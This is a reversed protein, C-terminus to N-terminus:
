IQRDGLTKDKISLTLDSKLDKFVKRGTLRGIIEKQTQNVSQERGADVKRLLPVSLPYFFPNMM